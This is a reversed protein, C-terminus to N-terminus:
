LHVLVNKCHQSSVNLESRRKRFVSALWSHVDYNYLKSIYEHSIHMYDKNREETQYDTTQMKNKYKISYKINETMDVKTTFYVYTHIHINYIVYFSCHFGKSSLLSITNSISYEIPRCVPLRIICATYPTVATVLCYCADITESRKSNAQM